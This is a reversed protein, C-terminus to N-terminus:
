TGPVPWGILMSGVNVTIIGAGNPTPKGLSNTQFPASAAVLYVELEYSQVVPTGNATANHDPSQEFVAQTPNVTQAYTQRPLLGFAALVSLCVVTLKRGFM